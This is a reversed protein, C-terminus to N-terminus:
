AEAQGSGAELADAVIQQAEPTLPITMALERAQASMKRWTKRVIRVMHDREVKHLFDAFYNELFVLCACDEVAQVAEDRGLGEKRIMSAVRSADEASYGANEMAEATLAGARRGQERRWALYGRRGEPYETRPIGWRQLHQARVALRTLEDPAEQLRELWASMRQAHWLEQPLDDGGVHVSRPDDAHMADIREMAQEFPTAPM